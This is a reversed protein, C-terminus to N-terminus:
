ALNTDENRVAEEEEERWIKSYLRVDKQLGQIIRMIAVATDVMVETNPERDGEIRENLFVVFGRRQHAM